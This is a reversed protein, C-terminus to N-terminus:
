LLLSEGSERAFLHGEDVRLRLKYNEGVQPLWEPGIRAVAKGGELELHLLIENGMPEVALVRGNVVASADARGGVVSAGNGEVAIHEPRLGLVAPGGFRRGAELRGALLVTLGAMRFAGDEVAGEFFNMAPSGIFSAVFRNAPRHYLDMPRAVQQLAGEHMVAIRDAMTMAEVQDHTVYIMTTQLRRHLNGLETRTQTRLAADLNSLPEDFLFVVPERVIARGLAVRQRQGGSLAKPKRDLYPLLGLLSATREVRNRIEDKGLKRLKLGFALNERVSMHPYLAYSQFVMAVDRDKPPIDNVPRDGIHITGSTPEELGAVLRLVTSKGCGSPGVLVLFERDQATLNMNRVAQVGGPYTKAVGTFRVEAM